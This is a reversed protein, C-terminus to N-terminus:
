IQKVNFHEAFYLSYYDDVITKYDQSYLVSIKVGGWQLVTADKRVIDEFSLDSRNASTNIIAVKLKIAEMWERLQGDNFENYAGKVRDFNDPCKFRFEGNPFQFFIGVNLSEELFPSHVYKLICYKFSNNKM